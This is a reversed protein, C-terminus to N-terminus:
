KNGSELIATQIHDGTRIYGNPCRWIKELDTGSWTKGGGKTASRLGLKLNDSNPARFSKGEKNGALYLPCLCRKRLEKQM